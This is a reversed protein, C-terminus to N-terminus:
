QCNGWDPKFSYTGKKLNTLVEPVTLLFYCSDWYQINPDVSGWGTSDTGGLQLWHTVNPGYAYVGFDTVKYFGSSDKLKIELCNGTITDAKAPAMFFHYKVPGNVNTFMRYADCCDIQEPPLIFDTVEVGKYTPVPQEKDPCLDWDECSIEKQCSVAMVLLIFLSLKRKMDHTKFISVPIKLTTEHLGTTRNSTNEM